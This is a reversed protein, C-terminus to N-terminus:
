DAVDLPSGAGGAADDPLLPDRPTAASLGCRRLFLALRRDEDLVHGIFWQSLASFTDPVLVAPGSRRIGGVLDRYEVLLTKHEGQHAGASPYEALRMVQEERVFHRRSLEGLRELRAVLREAGPSSKWAVSRDFDRGIGNLEGALVRHDADM